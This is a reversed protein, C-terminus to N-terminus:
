SEHRNTFTVTDCSFRTHFGPLAVSRDFTEAIIREVRKRIGPEIARVIDMETGETDVKLLDIMGHKSLAGELVANVDEVKVDIVHDPAVTGGGGEAPPPHFVWSAQDLTGYRGTSETAFRGDGAVTGVASEHLWFRGEFGELNARIRPLNQPNPEYLECVSTTSRTLFYLASLGINSGIDVIVEAPPTVRYDGRCFIEHATISDHPGFLRAEIPGSPTRVGLRAPYSGRGLFYREAADLPREYVRIMEALSHYNEWRLVNRAILKPSRDNFV